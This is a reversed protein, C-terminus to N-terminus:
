EAAELFKRLSDALAARGGVLDGRAALTDGWLALARRAGTTDRAELAARAEREFREVDALYAGLPAAPTPEAVRDALAERRDMGGEDADRGAEKELAAANEDARRTRATARGLADEGEVAEEAGGPERTEVADSKQESEAGLRGSEAPRNVDTPERPNERWVIGVILAAVAVLAIQPAWRRFARGGGPARWSTRAVIAARQAAWDPELGASGARRAEYGREIASTWSALAALEERCRECEALHADVRARGAEDLEGTRYADLHEGVHADRGQGRNGADDDRRM